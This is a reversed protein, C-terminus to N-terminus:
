FHEVQTNQLYEWVSRAIVKYGAALPHGDMTEGYIKEGRVLAGSLEPLTSHCYIREERCFEEFNRALERESADYVDFESPISEGVQKMYELYVMEKTPIYVLVLPINKSGLIHNIDHYNQKTIRWGERTRPESLNVAELRYAPSLLTRINPNTRYIYATHPHEEAFREMQRHKEEMTKAMGISERLARTSDGLFAYLRSHLRLWYRVEWIKFEISSRSLGTQLEKRYMIPESTTAPRTFSPDRFKEWRSIDKEYVGSYTELLDNGPYFGIMVIDPSFKLTRTALEYYQLSSYGGFAMQYVTSSSFGALVQPWAEDREANNGYTQSDGLVVINAKDPITTNRFGNADTDGGSGIVGLIPDDTYGAPQFLRVLIEGAILAVLVGLILVLLNKTHHHKIWSM